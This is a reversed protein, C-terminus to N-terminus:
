LEFSGNKLILQKTWLFATRSKVDSTIPPV